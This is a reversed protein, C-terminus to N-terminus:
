DRGSRGNRNVADDGHDGLRRSPVDAMAEPSDVRRHGRHSSPGLLISGDTRVAYHRLCRIVGLLAIPRAFGAFGSLVLLALHWQANTVTVNIESGSPLAIYVAAFLARTALGGWNSCRASLLFNIPLVQVTLGILNMLLPAFRLPPLLALAGAIREFLVLYGAYPFLLVHVWGNNYAAAFFQGDEAHFQANWLVGPRRSVVLVAALLFILLHFIWQAKM